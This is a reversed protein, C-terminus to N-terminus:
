SQTSRTTSFAQHGIPTLGPPSRVQHRRSCPPLSSWSSSVCRIRIAPRNARRTLAQAAALPTGSIKQVAPCRLCRIASAARPGPVRPPANRRVTGRILEGAALPRAARACGSRSPRAAPAAGSGAAPVATCARASSSRRQYGLLHGIRAATYARTDDAWAQPAAPGPRRTDGPRGLGAEAEPEAAAAGGSGSAAGAVRRDKSATSRAFLVMWGVLRLFVLYIMRVTV